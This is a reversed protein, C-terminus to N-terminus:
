GRGYKATERLIGQTLNEALKNVAEQAGEDAAQRLSPRAPMKSTGFELFRAVYYTSGAYATREGHRRDIQSLVRFSRRTEGTVDFFASTQRARNAIVRVGARVANEALRSSVAAGLDKLAKELEPGGSFTLSAQMCKGKVICWLRVM